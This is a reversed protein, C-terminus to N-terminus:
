TLKYKSITRSLAEYVDQRFHQPYLVEVQDGFGLIASILEVTILVEIEIELQNKSRRIIKQSQHIPQSEIYPAMRESFRLGVKQPLADIVTIGFSHAFFRRTDFDHNDLFNREILVLDVIRDLSFTRLLDKKEERGVIYWRNNYEKLLYPKLHYTQKDPSNFKRYVIKIVQRSACAKFIPELYESGKYHLAREFQIIEAAQHQKDANSIKMRDMIKEIAADFQTFLPIERFQFLTEAALRIADLDDENLPVEAISYNPDDYYYGKYEKSFKIPAYYGLESENRMAWLDKDITSSSIHEGNSGYLAEECAVRLDEKSPFKRRQNRICRDIIRYRLLAYKNAPM